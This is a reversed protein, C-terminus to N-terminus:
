ATGIPSHAFATLSSLNTMFDKLRFTMSSRSVRRSSDPVDSPAPPTSRTQPLSRWALVMVKALLASPTLRSTVMAEVLVAPTTLLVVRDKAREATVETQTEPPEFFSPMLAATTVTGTRASPLPPLSEMVVPAPASTMKAPPPLSATLLPPPLSRTNPPSPFSESLVPLPSSRALPPQPSSKM